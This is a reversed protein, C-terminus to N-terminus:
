TLRNARKKRHGADLYGDCKQKKKVETL